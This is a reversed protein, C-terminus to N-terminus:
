KKKGQLKKREAMGRQVAELFFRDTSLTNVHRSLYRGDHGQANVAYPNAGHAVLWEVARNNGSDVASLLPTMKTKQDCQEISVKYGLVVPLMETRELAAHFWGYGKSSLLNPNAGAKVLLALNAPNGAVVAVMGPTSGTVDELNTRAGNALLWRIAPPNNSVIAKMLPVQGAPNQYNVGFIKAAMQLSGLNPSLPAYDIIKGGRTTSDKLSGGHAVVYNIVDPGQTAFALHTTTFQVENAVRCLSPDKQLAALVKTSPATRFLTYLHGMQHYDGTDKYARVGVVEAWDYTDTRWANQPMVFTLPGCLGSHDRPLLSGTIPIRASVFNKQTQIGCDYVIKNTKQQKTYLHVDVEAIERTSWNDYSFSFQRIVFGRKTPSDKHSYNVFTYLGVLKQDKGKFSDYQDGVATAALVIGVMAITVRQIANM